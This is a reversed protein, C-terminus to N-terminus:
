ARGPLGLAPSPGGELPCDWRVPQVVALLSVARVPVCSGHVYVCVHIYLCAGKERERECVCARVRTHVSVYPLVRVRRERVCVGYSVCVCWVVSVGYWVCVCWVVSVGYWVCVGYSVCVCVM